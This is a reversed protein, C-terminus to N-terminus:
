LGYIWDFGESKFEGVVTVGQLQQNYLMEKERGGFFFSNAM